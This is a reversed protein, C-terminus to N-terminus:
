GARHSRVPCNGDLIGVQQELGVRIAPGHGEADIQRQGMPRRREARAALEQPPLFRHKEMM